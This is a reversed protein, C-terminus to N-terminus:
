AALRHRWSGIMDLRILVMNTTTTIATNTAVPAMSPVATACFADAGFGCSLRCESLALDLLQKESHIGVVM